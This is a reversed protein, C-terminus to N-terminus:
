KVERFRINKVILYFVCVCVCLKGFYRDGVVYKIVMIKSDYVNNSSEWYYM